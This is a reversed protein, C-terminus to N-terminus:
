LRVQARAQGTVLATFEKKSEINRVRVTEGAAGNEMALAKMNISLTGDVASVDIVDGKRVLARRSVDRWTIVAGAQVPRNFTLDAVGDALSVTDRERLADIERTDLQSPDFPENRSVPNRAVWVERMLQARVLLSTDGLSKEGSHFHVRVLMNSNMVAPAELLDAAIPGNADSPTTWARLLEVRLEGNVKYHESLQRTLDAMFAPAKAADAATAASPRPTMDAAPAPASASAPAQALALSAVASVFFATLAFPKM